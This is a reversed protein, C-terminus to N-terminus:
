QGEESNAQEGKALAALQPCMKDRLQSTCTCPKDTYPCIGRVDVESNALRYGNMDCWEQFSGPDDSEFAECVLEVLRENEAELEAIRENLREIECWPCEDSENDPLHRDCAPTRFPIATIDSMARSFEAVIVERKLEDDNKLESEQLEGLNM